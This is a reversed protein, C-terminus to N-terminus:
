IPTVKWNKCNYLLYSDNEIADTINLFTYEPKTKYREVRFCDVFEKPNDTGKKKPNCNVFGYTKTNAVYWGGVDLYVKCDTINDEYSTGDKKVLYGMYLPGTYVDLGKHQEDKTKIFNTINETMNYHNSIKGTYTSQRKENLVAINTFFSVKQRDFEAFYHEFLSRVQQETLKLYVNEKEKKIRLYIYYRQEGRNKIMYNSPLVITYKLSNNYGKMETIKRLVRQISYEITMSETLKLGLITFSEQFLLSNGLMMLVTFLGGSGIAGYVGGIFILFIGTQRRLEISNSSKKRTKNATSKAKLTTM